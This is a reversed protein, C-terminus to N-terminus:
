SSADNRQDSSQLRSLLHMDDANGIHSSSSTRSISSVSGPQLLADLPPASPTYAPPPIELLATSVSEANRCEACSPCPTEELEIHYIFPVERTATHEADIEKAPPASPGPADQSFAVSNACSSSSFQQHQHQEHPLVLLNPPSLPAPPASPLPAEWGADDEQPEEPLGSVSARCSPNDEQSLYSASYGSLSGQRSERGIGQKNRLRIKTYIVIGAVMAIGGIGGVLGLILAIRHLAEQDDQLQDEFTAEQDSDLPDSTNKSGSTTTTAAATGQVVASTQRRALKASRSRSKFAASNSPVSPTPILFDVMPPAVKANPSSVAHVLLSQDIVVFCCLATISTAIFHVTVLTSLLQMHHCASFLSLYRSKGNLSLFSLSSSSPPFLSLCLSLISRHVMVQLFLYAITTFIRTM